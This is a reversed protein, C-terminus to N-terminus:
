KFTFRGPYKKTIPNQVVSTGFNNTVRIDVTGYGRPVTVKIFSGDKDIDAIEAALIGFDVKPSDSFHSGTITVIGGWNASVKDLSDIVPVKSPITPADLLELYTKSQHQYAVQMMFKVIPDADKPYFEAGLKKWLNENLAPRRAPQVYPNPDPTKNAVVEILKGVENDPKATPGPGKPHDSHDPYFPDDRWQDVLSTLSDWAHPILDYKNYTCVANPFRDNFLDAFAKDGATPAAFTYPLITSNKLVSASVEQLFLAVTTAMAGGLSHGVVYFTCPQLAALTALITVLDTGMVIDTFAEMAGLSINGPSGNLTGGPTFPLLEGVQMDEAQDIPDGMVTGRLVLAYVPRHNSDDPGRAIYALNAGNSTLRVMNTSMRAGDLSWGQTLTQAKLQAEIGDHIRKAQDEPAEGSPRPAAATAALAALTMMRQTMIDTM